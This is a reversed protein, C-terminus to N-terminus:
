AGSIGKIEATGEHETKCGSCAPLSLYIGSPDDPLDLQARRAVDEVGAKTLAFHRGCARCFAPLYADPEDLQAKLKDSNPQHNGAYQQQFVGFAEESITKTDEKKNGM